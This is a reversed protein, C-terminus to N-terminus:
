KDNCPSEESERESRRMWRRGFTEGWVGRWLKEGESSDMLRRLAIDVFAEEWSLRLVEGNVNVEVDRAGDSISAFDRVLTYYVLEVHQLIGVDRVANM